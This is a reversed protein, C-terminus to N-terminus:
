QPLEVSIDDISDSGNVRVRVNYLGHLQLLLVSVSDLPAPGFTLATAAGPLIVLQTGLVGVKAGPSV